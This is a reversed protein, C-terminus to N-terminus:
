PPLEKEGDLINRIQQWEAKKKRLRERIAEQERSPAAGLEEELRAVEKQVRYLERAIQRISM